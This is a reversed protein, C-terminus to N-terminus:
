GTSKLTKIANQMEGKRVLIDIDALFRSETPYYNHLLGASGKLFMVSVDHDNFHTALTEIHHLM